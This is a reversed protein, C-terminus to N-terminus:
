WDAPLKVYTMTARGESQTAGRMQVKPFTTRKFPLMQANAFRVRNTDSIEDQMPLVSTDDTYSLGLWAVDHTSVHVVLGDTFDTPFATLVNGNDTSVGGITYQTLEGLRMLRDFFLGRPDTSYRNDGGIVLSPKCLYMHSGATTAHTTLTRGEPLILPEAVNGHRQFFHSGGGTAQLYWAGLLYWHEGATVTRSQAAGIVFEYADPDLLAAMDQWFTVEDASLTYGPM